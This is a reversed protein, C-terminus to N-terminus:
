GGSAIKQKLAAIEEEARKASANAGQVAQPGRANSARKKAEKLDWEAKRLKKENESL